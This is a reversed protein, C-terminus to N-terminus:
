EMAQIEIQAFGDVHQAIRHAGEGLLFDSRPGGLDIAVIPKGGIQPGLETIQSQDAHSDVLLVAADVHAVEGMDDDHLFERPGGGGDAQGIAGVGVQAHILNVAVAAGFLFGAIQGLENGALMNPCQGHGFGISAGVHHAHFQAGVLFAVAVDQVAALHPDGVAAVGIGQHDVGLGVQVGTRAADGSKDHFFPERAKTM